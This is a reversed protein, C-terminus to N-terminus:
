RDTSPARFLFRVVRSVQLTSPSRSQSLGASSSPLLVSTLLDYIFIALFENRVVKLTVFGQESNVALSARNQLEVAGGSLGVGANGVLWIVANINGHTATLSLNKRNAGFKDQPHEVPANPIQINPNIIFDGSM